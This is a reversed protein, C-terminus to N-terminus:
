ASGEVFDKKTRVLCQCHKGSVRNPAIQRRVRQKRMYIDVDGSLQEDKRRDNLANTNQSPIPVKAITVGSSEDSM